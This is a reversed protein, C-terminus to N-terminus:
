RARGRRAHRGAFARDLRERPRPNDLPLLATRDLFPYPAVNMAFADDSGTNCAPPNATPHPEPEVVIVDLDQRHELAAELAARVPMSCAIVVVRRM